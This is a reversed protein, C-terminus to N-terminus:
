RVLLCFTFTDPVSFPFVSVSLGSSLWSCLCSSLCSCLWSCLWSCLCSSPCFFPCSSLPVGFHQKDSHGRSILKSAGIAMEQLFLELSNSYTKMSYSRYNPEEVLDTNSHMMAGQCTSVQKGTHLCATIFAPQCAAIFTNVTHQSPRHLHPYLSQVQYGIMFAHLLCAAAAWRLGLRCSHLEWVGM